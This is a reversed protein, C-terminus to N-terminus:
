TDSFYCATLVLASRTFARAAHTVQGYEDSERIQQSLLAELQSNSNQLETQQAQLFTNQDQLQRQQRLINQTQKREEVLQRKFDDVAALAQDYEARRREETVLNQDLIQSKSALQARLADMEVTLLRAKRDMAETYTKQLAAAGRQAEQKIAEIEILRSHTDERAQAAAAEAANLSAQDRLIQANMYEMEAAIESNCQQTEELQALL